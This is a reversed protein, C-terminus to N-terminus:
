NKACFLTSSPTISVTEPICYLTRRLPVPVSCGEAYEFTTLMEAQQKKTFDDFNTPRYKRALVKYSQDSVVNNEEDAEALMDFGPATEPDIVPAQETEQETEQVIDQGTDQGIEHNDSM